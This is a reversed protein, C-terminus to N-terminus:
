DSRDVKSAVLEWHPILGVNGKKAVLVEYHKDDYIILDGGTKKEFDAPTFEVKIPAFVSITEINRKGEPLLEITKGSAPQATGCFELDVPRGKKWQGKEYYGTTSRRTLKMNMLLSM